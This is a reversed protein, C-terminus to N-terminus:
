PPVLAPKVAVPSILRPSKLTAKLAGIAFPPTITDSLIAILRSISVTRAEQPPRVAGCCACARQGPHGALPGNHAQARGAGAPEHDAGRGYRGPEHDHGIRRRFHPLDTAIM